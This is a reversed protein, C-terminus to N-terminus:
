MLQLMKKKSFSCKYFQVKSVKWPLLCSCHELNEQVASVFRLPILIDCQPEAAASQETYLSFHSKGKGQEHHM